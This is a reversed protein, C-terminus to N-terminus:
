SPASARALPPASALAATLALTAALAVGRRLLNPLAGRTLAHPTWPTKSSMVTM